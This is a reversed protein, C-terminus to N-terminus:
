DLVNYSIEWPVFLLQSAWSGSWNKLLLQYVDQIKETRCQALNTMNKHVSCLGCRSTSVGSSHFFSNCLLRVVPCCAWWNGFPLRTIVSPLLRVRFLAQTMEPCDLEFPGQSAASYPLIAIDLRIRWSKLGSETHLVVCAFALFLPIAGCVSAPAVKSVSRAMNKAWASIILSSLHSERLYLVVLVFGLEM